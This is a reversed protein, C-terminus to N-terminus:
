TIIKPKFKPSRLIYSLFILNHFSTGQVITKGYMLILKPKSTLMLDIWPHPPVLCASVLYYSIPKM